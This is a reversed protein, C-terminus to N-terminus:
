DSENMKQIAMICRSIDNTQKTCLFWGKGEPMEISRGVRGIMQILSAENFVIHEGHFIIIYIGRITIGRELVTTSVLFEYKGAHFAEIIREKHERKSTFSTCRFYLSLCRSLRMAMAITPVFVITQIKKRRQEILISILKYCLSLNGGRIVDPVILPYGHPRQFLEVMALTGAKVRALM